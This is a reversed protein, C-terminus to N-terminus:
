EEMMLAKSASNMGKLGGCRNLRARSVDSASSTPELPALSTGACASDSVFSSSVTVGMLAM